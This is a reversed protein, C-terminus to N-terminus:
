NLIHQVHEAIQSCMISKPHTSDIRVCNETMLEDYHQCIQAFRDPHLVAKDNASLVARRELRQKVTQFDAQLYFWIDPQVFQTCIRMMQEKQKHPVAHCALTSMDYRDLVANQGAALATQVQLSHDANVGMYFAARETIDAKTRDFAQRARSMSAPLASLDTFGLQNIAYRTMSSKGTGDFGEFVILKGTQIINPYKIM